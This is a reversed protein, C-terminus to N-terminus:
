QIYEGEVLQFGARLSRQGADFLTQSVLQLTGYVMSWWWRHYVQQVRVSGTGCSLLVRLSPLGGSDTLQILKLCWLSACYELWSYSLTCEEDATQWISFPIVWDTFPVNSHTSKLLYELLILTNENKKIYDRRQYAETVHLWKTQLGLDLCHLIITINILQLTM